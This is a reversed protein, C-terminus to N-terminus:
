VWAMVQSTRRIPLIIVYLGKLVQFDPTSIIANTEIRKRLTMEKHTSGRANGSSSM